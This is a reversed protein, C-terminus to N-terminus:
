EASNPNENEHINGTVKLKHERVTDEHLFFGGRGEPYNVECRFFAPVWTVVTVFDGYEYLDVGSVIDGEYIEVGGQDKLGTFQEVTFDEGTENWFADGIDIVIGKSTLGIKQDLYSEGDWVRFKIERKM